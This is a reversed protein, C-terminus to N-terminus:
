KWLTERATKYIEIYSSINDQIERLYAAAQIITLPLYGLEKILQPIILIYEIAQIDTEVSLYVKLFLVSIEDIIM